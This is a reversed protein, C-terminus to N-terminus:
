TQNICYIINVGDEFPEKIKSILFGIKMIQHCLSYFIMSRKMQKKLLM